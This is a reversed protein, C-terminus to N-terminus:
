HNKWVIALKTIHNDKIYQFLKTTATGSHTVMMRPTGHRDTGYGYGEGPAICGEVDTMWNAKHILVAFRGVGNPRESALRYVGLNKNVVAYAEDGNSRTISSLNYVGDPICSIGNQNQMWPREIADVIYKGEHYFQGLTGHEEHDGWRELILTDLM